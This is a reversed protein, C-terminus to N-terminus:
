IMHSTGWAAFLPDMDLVQNDEAPLVQEPNMM